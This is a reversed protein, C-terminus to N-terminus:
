LKFASKLVHMLEGTVPHPLSDKFSNSHLFSLRDRTCSLHFSWCSYCHMKDMHM